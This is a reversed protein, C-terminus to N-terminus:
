HLLDIDFGILTTAGNITLLRNPAINGDATNASDFIAVQTPANNVYLINDLFKLYRMNDTLGTQDGELIRNPDVNENLDSATQFVNIQPGLSNAMFLLDNAVNMGISNIMDFPDEDDFFIRTPVPNGILTSAQAYVNIAFGIDDGVYLFDRENDIFIATAQFGITFTRDPIDDDVRSARDWVQITQDTANFVYLRNGTEDFTMLQINGGAPMQRTPSVDGDKQSAPAFVLVAEQNADAVYLIDRLGDVAIATPNEILTNDGSLTRAPDVTGNVTTVNEVVFVAKAFSDLLYLLTKAPVLPTVGSCSLGGHLLLVWGFLSVIVIQLKTKMIEGNVRNCIGLFESLSICVESDPATALRPKQHSLDFQDELIDTTAVASPLDLGISEGNLGDQLAKQFFGKPFLYVDNGRAAGVGPNVGQPLHGMELGAVPHIQFGQM